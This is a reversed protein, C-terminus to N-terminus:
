KLQLEWLKSYTILKSYVQYLAYIVGKVGDMFALQKFMRLFFERLAASLFRTFNMQPHNADLLLKAEIESWKNTKEIMQAITINKHHIIPNKLHGMRQSASEEMEPEEHLEGTWKLIKSRLFLRKQYDPYQGSYKFEQGFIINRRPLAYASYKDQRIEIEIESRLDQSVEEDSDIYLVWEGTEEKLGENRWQSFSGQIKNTNIQLVEDCWTLSDLCKKFLKKDQKGDSLVIASIKKTKAM